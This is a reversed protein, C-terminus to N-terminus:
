FNMHFFVFNKLNTLIGPSISKNTVVVEEAKDQSALKSKNSNGMKFDRKEILIGRKM